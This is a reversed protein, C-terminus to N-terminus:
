DKFTQRAPRSPLRARDDKCGRLPFRFQPQLSSPGSRRPEGGVGGWSELKVREPELGLGGLAPASGTKEAVLGRSVPPPTDWQRELDM